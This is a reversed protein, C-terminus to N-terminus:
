QVTIVTAMNGSYGMGKYKASISVKAGPRAQKLLSLAEASLNPGSGPISRPAGSVTVEWSAVDFTANLPIEPPYKAFLRTMGGIAAKSVSSGTAITGLYVQPPPLNSVRFKFSGLSATKNTVSSKGSISITAERGTTTTTGIYQNGGVKSLTVGNGNLVTQDYGSAVGEVKNKYGRYLVNMEPLSVTGSPKMIKIIKTWNQTKPIGSKNKITITGSLNMETAGSAKMKIFGKGDRIETVNAGNLTVEPQKDSDYAAMLVEVQIDDGNNAIDPGYALAMIKNFSYEGGGVRLRITAVADARATLIEKQMSSLSAIAAVVPSHDFTKGIWHVGDQGHMEHYTNKSLSGYIKKIAEIDDMNVRSSKIAKDIKANLDKQDKFDNISPAKFFYKKGDDGVPFSSAILETLDNRYKNYSNWLKIGNGTPAKINEAIGMIRMPDDYKDMAQVNALHMRTPKLPDKTSYAKFIISEEKGISSVDEGTAKLIEIKLDDIMKIREATMKDIEAVTKMLAIAKKQVDPVSKDEAKEALESKKEDGRAFENENSIQINEEIAVFADLISKSVNLALLATLVLYMMGIMKQRPTEKGGAM